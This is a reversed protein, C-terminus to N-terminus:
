PFSVDADNMKKMNNCFVAVILGHVSLSIFAALALIVLVLTSGIRSSLLLQVNRSWNTMTEIQFLFLSTIYINDYYFNEKLLDEYDRGKELIEPSKSALCTTNSPCKLALNTESCIFTLAEDIKYVGEATM